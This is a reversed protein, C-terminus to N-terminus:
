KTLGNIIDKLEDIQKQQEKIAEILVGVINGYSVSLMGDDGERVVEPLVSIIEQAIVGVKDSKDDSDTRNYSVGRMKLTKDLANEITKINTKLREDSYATIDGGATITGTAAFNGTISNPNLNEETWYTYPGRFVNSELRSYRPPGWFPMIHTTNYYNSGNGHSGIFYNAWGTYGAFTGSTQNFSQGDTAYGSISLKTATTASTASTATAANGTTAQNWTPVTGTLGSYAVNTATAANGTCSGSSGTVTTQVINSTKATNALVATNNTILSQVTTTYVGNTVTGANGTITTQDGSNNGSITADSLATSLQAVTFSGLVAANGVSTIHGTLNANTTVTAANGSVSGTITSSFTKTGAITQTGTTYVGNTVTGANGSVTTQVVNEIYNDTHITGAGAQTWDIVANGSPITPKNLIHADGSAANWDSQVNQEANSPAHAAQSHTYATNWQTSTGGTAGLVSPFTVNKNEDTGYVSRKGAPYGGWVQFKSLNINYTSYAGTSWTPQFDFHVTRHHGTSTTSPHFAISNFPLYLHGPWSSVSSTSSTHQSWVGAGTQKRVKVTTSHSNSSWYMYLSNLFVYNGDNILEIRFHVTANPIYIGSSADGGLFKRKDTDSFSTYETWTAGDTSTYFKLKSIDYFATKNNFQEEHLAMESLSPSGLNNVPVGHGAQSLRYFDDSVDGRLFSTSNIGDLLDADLGSGSGDVTKIATLIEAATQDGTNTGSLNGIDTKDQASLGHDGWGYATNWNSQGTNTPISYGSAFVLALTGSTTIPTGSVSLGTPVTMAVSTLTGATTSYGQAKVYATTAVSTDNSVTTPTVSRPSGTFTPSALPAYTSLNQDGTNTGSLNGIDTKDQASLGHDGWGYATDWNADKRTGAGTGSSPTKYIGDRYVLNGLAVVNMSTETGSFVFANGTGYSAGDSHVYMLTGNQSPTSQDSFNIKAGGGNTDNFLSLLPNTTGAAYDITLGGTMTGGAKPLAANATTQATSADAVGTSGRDYAAKAATASARTTSSTTSISDTVSTDGTNTGSSTGSFNSAVVTGAVVLNNTLDWTDDADDFILSAQTVGDGRYISIGSTAATATDPSAQTTNLQLINDEVEVTATNITTTTGNVTLNGGVIVDGVFSSNTGLTLRLVSSVSGSYLKISNRGYISMRDADGFSNWDGETIGLPAAATTDGFHLEGGQVMRIRKIAGTTYTGVETTNNVNGVISGMVTADGAFTANGSELITLTDSAVSNKFYTATSSGAYYTTNYIGSNVVLNTDVQVDGNVHLKRSPSTTGIGVNGTPSLIIDKNASVTSLTLGERGIIDFGNTDYSNIKVGEYYTIGTGDNVTIIGGNVHLKTGPNNTGIGVNGGFTAGRSTMLTANNRNDTTIDLQTDNSTLTPATTTASALIEASTRITTNSAIVTTGSGSAMGLLKIWIETSGSDSPNVAAIAVLKSTNYRVGPLRQIHMYFGYGATNVLYEDRMNTNDGSSTISIRHTVPSGSGAWIKFWEDSTSTRAFSVENNPASYRSPSNQDVTNVYLSTGNISGNVDLKYSPSTTGIGVNGTNKITLLTSAAANTPTITRDGLYNFRFDGDQQTGFAWSRDTTQSSARMKVWTDRSQTTGIDNGFIAATNDVNLGISNTNVDLLQQPSTTGIGVNGNALIRMKESGGLETKLDNNALKIAATTTSNDYKLSAENTTSDIKIAAAGGFVHLKEGPSTTGIGVNGQVLLGSTPPLTTAVTTGISLGANAHLIMGLISNGSGFELDNAAYSGGVRIFSRNTGQSTQWVIRERAILADGESKLHLDGTLPYGSGATLPLYPGGIIGSGSGDAWDVGTATSVLVQNAAGTNGNSDVLYKTSYTKGLAM